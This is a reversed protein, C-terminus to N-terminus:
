VDLISTKACITFPMLNKVIKAFLKMKSTQCSESNAELARQSKASFAGDLINSLIKFEGRIVELFRWGDTIKAFSTVIEKSFKILMVTNHM